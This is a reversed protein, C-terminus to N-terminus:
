SSLIRKFFTSIISTIKQVKDLYKGRVKQANIKINMMRGPAELAAGKIEMYIM